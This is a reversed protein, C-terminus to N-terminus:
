LQNSATGARYGGQPLEFVEVDAVVVDAVQGVFQGRQGPQPAHDEAAVGEQGGVLGPGPVFLENSQQVFLGLYHISGCVTKV